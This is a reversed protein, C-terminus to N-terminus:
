RKKHKISGSRKVEEELEEDLTLAIQLLAEDLVDNKGSLQVALASMFWQDVHISIM